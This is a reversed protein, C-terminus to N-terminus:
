CTISIATPAMSVCRRSYLTSSIEVTFRCSIDYFYGYAVILGTALMVKAMNELHHMTIFDELDYAKRLPIAITLV